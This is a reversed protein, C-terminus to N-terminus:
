STHNIHETLQTDLKILKQTNESVKSRIDDVKQDMHALHNTMLLEIKKNTQEVRESLVAIEKENNGHDKSQKGERTFYFVVVGVVVGLLTMIPLIIDTIINM